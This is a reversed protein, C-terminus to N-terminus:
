NEKNPILILDPKSTIGLKKEKQHQIIESVEASMVYNKVIDEVQNYSFHWAWAKTLMFVSGYVGIGLIYIALKKETPM